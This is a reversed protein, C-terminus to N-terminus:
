RSLEGRASLILECVEWVAGAGAAREPVYHAISLIDPAATKPAAAFGALQMAEFDPLDDGVFATGAADVSESKMVQRMTDCKDVIGVHIHLIGLDAARHHIAASEGVTAASIVAVTGGAKIFRKIGFGDLVHFSRGVFDKMYHLKGDTLTGDVDLCLLRVKAARNIASEM